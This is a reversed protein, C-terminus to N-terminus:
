INDFIGCACAAKYTKTLGEELTCKPHWGLATLRQSNMLKRKPGDPKSPDTTIQGKFGTIKAITKALNIISIEEGSGINLIEPQSYNQLIHICADALDDVFMFERLPTGTGWITVTEAGSIKAEHFRRILAAPVHATEPHYNDNPGYLNTPMVSIFDCGHQKRYAECMKIGAIKAIAYPENTSELPATLLCNEQMPQPADKPYICSSGLFLLKETKYKYAAHIINTQIALNDYIFEAPFRANAHIGGVKAAAIIIADPQNQSLWAEVQDQRTLDTENKPTTLITCNESELRRILASGVMGKHGAIWIKKAKLPYLM